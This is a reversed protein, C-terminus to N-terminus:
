LQWGESLDKLDPNDKKILEIKKNRTWGKIQKERQIADQPHYFMDYYVLKNINYREVFGKATKNKHEYMRRELDNIMGTYLATNRENTMIYTYYHQEEQYM